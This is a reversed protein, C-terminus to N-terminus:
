DDWRVLGYEKEKEETDIYECYEQMVVRIDETRYGLRQLAGVTRRRGKEDWTLNRKKAFWERIKERPDGAAERSVQDALEKSIGRRCLEMRIRSQSYKKRCAWEESLRRAYEEDQILGLEEMRLAAQHAALAGVEEALREELEKRCYSRRELLRLAKKHARLQQGHAVWNELEEYTVEMGPKPRCSELAEKWLSVSTGDELHLTYLGKKGAEVEVIRTGKEPAEWLIEM